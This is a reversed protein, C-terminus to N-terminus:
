KTDMKGTEGKRNNKIEPVIFTMRVRGRLTSDATSIRECTIFLPCPSLQLSPHRPPSPVRVPLICAPQAGVSAMSGEM